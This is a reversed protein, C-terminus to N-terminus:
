GSCVAHPLHRGQHTRGRRGGSGGSEPTSRRRTWCWWVKTAPVLRDVQGGKYLAVVRGEEATTARSSHRKAGDYDLVADAKFKSGARSREQQEGMAKDFGVMDVEFNGARPRHRRLDIPFGYTDSLKFATDGDLRNANAKRAAELIEM